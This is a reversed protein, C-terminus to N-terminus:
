FKLKERGHAVVGVVEEGVVGGVEIAYFAVAKEVAVDDGGGGVVDHGHGAAARVGELLDEVDTSVKAAHCRVMVRHMNPAGSSVHPGHEGVQLCERVDAVEGELAESACVFVVNEISMPEFGFDGGGGGGGTMTFLASMAAWASSAFRLFRAAVLKELLM